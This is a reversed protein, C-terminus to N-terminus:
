KVEQLNPKREYLVSVASLEREHVLLRDGYGYNRTDSKEEFKARSICGMIRVRVPSLVQVGVGVQANFQSMDNLFFDIEKATHCFTKVQCKWENIFIDTGNDGNAHVAFDLPVDFENSIAVEGMAGIYHLEYEGKNEDYKRSKVGLSRKVCRQREAFMAIKLLDFANFGVIISRDQKM